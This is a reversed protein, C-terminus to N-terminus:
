FDASFNIVGAGSNDSLIAASGAAAFGAASGCVVAVGQTSAPTFTADTALSTCATVATCATTTCGAFGTTYTMTPVKFMIVPTNIQCKLASTTSAICMARGVTTATESIRYFYRQAKLVEQKNDRFEFTSPTAVSGSPIIELQAGTWAFGDTAGAGTATPTFCFGVAMETVTSAVLATTQPRSWASSSLASTATNVLTAIGTWAPTIAPSATPTGFGEDTGTGTIIVMNAIAGNDALMGALAQMYVSLLVQQGQLKKVDVTPIEQWTCIPQTLAGSTRFLTQANTFGQPPTPTATIVQQRGAGVAVNAQCGWRDAGYAASTIGANAACTIVGTGRQTVELAGNDLWNRPTGFNGMSSYTIGSNIQNIVGNIVAQGQSAEWPGTLLPINAGVAALASAILAAGAVM